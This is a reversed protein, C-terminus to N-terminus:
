DNIQDRDRLNVTSAHPTKMNATSPKLILKDM